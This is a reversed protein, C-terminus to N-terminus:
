RLSGLSINHSSVLLVITLSSINSAVAGYPAIASTFCSPGIKPRLDSGCLNIATFLELPTPILEM